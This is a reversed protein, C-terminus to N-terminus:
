REYLERADVGTRREIPEGIKRHERVLRGLMEHRRLQKGLTRAAHLAPSRVIEAVRREAEARPVKRQRLGAIVDAPSAGLALCEAAWVRWEFALVRPARARVSGGGSSSRTSARTERAVGRLTRTRKAAM